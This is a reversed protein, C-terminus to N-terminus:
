GGGLRVSIGSEGVHTVDLREPGNNSILTASPGIRFVGGGWIQGFHPAAIRAAVTVSM